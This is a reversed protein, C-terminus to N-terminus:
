TLKESKISWITWEEEAKEPSKALDDNRSYFKQQESFEKETFSDSTLVQELEAMEKTLGEVEREWKLLNRQIAKREKYSVSDSKKRSEIAEPKKVERDGQEVERMDKAKREQLFYELDGLYPKVKGNNFELVRETLGTLFHRDHSIVLLTGEFNLLAEKLADKSMMDLHNTPEDLILFNVPRTLLRCMALRAREGGSLVSVKKDVTEGSFLFPATNFRLHVHSKICKICLVRM